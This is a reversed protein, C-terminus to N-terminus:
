NIVMTTKVISNTQIIEPFQRYLLWCQISTSKQSLFRLVSLYFFLGFPDLVRGFGSVVRSSFSGLSCHRNVQNGYFIFPFSLHWTESIIVFISLMLLIEAFLYVRISLLFLFIVFRPPMYLSVWSTPFGLPWFNLGLFNRNAKHSRLLSSWVKFTKGSQEAIRRQQFNREWRTKPSAKYSM